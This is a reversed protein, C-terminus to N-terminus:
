RGGSAGWGPRSRACGARSSTATPARCSSTPSYWTRGRDLPSLLLSTRTLRRFAGRTTAEDGLVRACLDANFRDLVALELIFRREREPTSRLVEDTLAGFLDEDRGALQEAVADIDEGRRLRLAALYLAAPWGETGQELRAAQEPRLKLGLRDCLFRLVEDEGFRLEGARLELVEGRIQRHRLSDLGLERRTAILVRHTSPLRALLWDLHERTAAEGLALHLDDLILTIQAPAAALADLLVILVDQRVDADPAEAADLAADLEGGLLDVVQAEHRRPRLLGITAPPHRHDRGPRAPDDEARQLLEATREQGEVDDAVDAVRDGGLGHV